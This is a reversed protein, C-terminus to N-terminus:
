YKTFFFFSKVNKIIKKILSVHNNKNIKCEIINFFCTFLIMKFPLVQSAMLDPYIFFNIFFINNDNIM